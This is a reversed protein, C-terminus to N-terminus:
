HSAAVAATALAETTKTIGTTERIETVEGTEPDAEETFEKLYMTVTGRGSPMQARVPILYRSDTLEMLWFRLPEDEEVKKGQARRKELKKRQKEAKKKEKETLIRKGAVLEAEVHCERAEGYFPSKGHKELLTTQPLCSLQWDFVSDGDFARITVPNSDMDAPLKARLLAVALSAPDPGKQMDEPVPERPYKELWEEPWEQDMNSLQGDASFTLARMYDEGDWRGESKYALPKVGGDPLLLGSSTVASRGNAFLKAIGRMRFSIGIDYQEEQLRLDAEATSVLFGKWYFNFVAALDDQAQVGQAWLATSAIALLRAAKMSDGM